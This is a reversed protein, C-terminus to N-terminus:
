GHAVRGLGSTSRAANPQLLFLLLEASLAFPAVGRRETVNGVGPSFQREQWMMRRSSEGPTGHLAAAYLCATTERFFCGHGRHPCSRANTSTTADWGYRRGNVTLHL